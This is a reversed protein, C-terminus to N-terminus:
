CVETLDIEVITEAGTFFFLWLRSRICLFRTLVASWPIIANRNFQYVEVTNKM